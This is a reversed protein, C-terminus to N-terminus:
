KYKELVYQALTRAQDDPLTKATYKPMGKGPNRFYKVLAEVSALNNAELDKAHLTKEPRIRNGGDPHCSACKSKYLAEGSKADEATGPSPAACALVFASVTLVALMAMRSM